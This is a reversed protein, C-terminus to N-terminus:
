PAITIYYTIDLSFLYDRDPINIEGTFHIVHEGVSLPALMLFVGDAVDGPPPNPGAVADTGYVNDAPIIYHILPSQVRYPTNLPDALGQVPRGDITCTMNQAQDQIWKALERLEAETATTPPPPVSVNNVEVNIIPFFLAKGAPVTIHRTANGVWINNTEIATWTGGLFWVQGSQGAAANIGTDDFLPHGTVPMSYAWEWWAASWEGYTKGFAHSQPPLIGPNNVNGGGALTVTTGLALTLTLAGIIRVANSKMQKRENTTRARSAGPGTQRKQKVAGVKVTPTAIV